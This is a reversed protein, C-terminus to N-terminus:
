AFMFARLAQPIDFTGDERQYNEMIAALTRGVALGSGNLMHPYDNSGDPRRMRVNARRAQFGETNSCSSIEVYRGYSPMWVEIDYTKAAAFGMDGTCLLVVRYPLELLQLISEADSVMSELENYSDEPKTIKILEVKNFQHRRILGRTDRGAAGAERRFCASYAVYRKPLEAEVLVEGSHYAVMPLEATPILYLDDEPCYYMEDKFKPLHGTGFATDSKVLYPPIVFTYGHDKVHTWVMFNILTLELLAGLGQYAVFRSGSIKAARQFDLINMNEGIEWHPKPEFAFTRPEGWRRVEVNESSDKGTPVSAHPINPLQKLIEQIKSELESVITEKASVEEKLKKLLEIEQSADTGEKKKKSVVSTLENRRTNLEQLSTVEKRRQEDLALLQDLISEDYQRKRLAERMLKENERVFRLTYLTM